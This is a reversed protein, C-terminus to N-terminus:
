INKTKEPIKSKKKGANKFEKFLKRPKLAKKGNM